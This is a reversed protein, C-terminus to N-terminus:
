IPYARPVKVVYTGAIRDHWAQREPDRLIWLFGLGAIVLSFIGTLGRVLSVPLELKGGDTRVVRLQCIMGGLTTSKWTWFGVHYMLALLLLFRETSGHRDLDLLQMFIGIAVADIVLAALRESFAAKPYGALGVDVVPVREESLAADEAQFRLGRPHGYSGGDPPLESSPPLETAPPFEAAPPLATDLSLDGAPPTVPVVPPASPPEGGKSKKPPRPNERRYASYFALTAAGLGFVGALTWVMFGILPIMYTVCMIASGIVFSRLSESRDSPDEQRVMSMGIWRAFAVRGLVGAAVIAALVFPVVLVGIVSVTLLLCLPGALLLVLLGAMFSSFPSTRMTATSARVPADFLMNLCLNIFFFIAAVIWVWGLSPVIPRGLLLGHTLWPVLARLGEGLGALGIVVHQGGPAFSTPTHADGVVVFDRGVKAGEAIEATGAISVFNGEVVATSTLEAKGLIVVVDEEVRGEIRADGAVVVVHRATDGQRLAYNQLIRLAPNGYTDFSIEFNQGAAGLPAACLAAALAVLAISARIRTM